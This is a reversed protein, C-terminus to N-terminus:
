GCDRVQSWGWGGEQLHGKSQLPPWVVTGLGRPAWVRSVLCIPKLSSQFASAVKRSGHCSEAPLAPAPSLNETARDCRRDWLQGPVLPPARSTNAILLAKCVCLCVRVRQRMMTLHM